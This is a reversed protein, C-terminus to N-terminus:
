HSHILYDPHLGVLHLITPLVLVLIVILVLTAFCVIMLKKM